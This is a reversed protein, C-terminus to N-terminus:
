CAGGGGGGVAVIRLYNLGDPVQFSGSTIFTQPFTQSFCDNLSVGSPLNSRFASWGASTSTPVFHDKSGTNVVKKCVGHADIEPSTTGANVRYGTAATNIGYVILPILIVGLVIYFLRKKDKLLRKYNRKNLFLKM